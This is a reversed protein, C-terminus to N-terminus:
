NKVFSAMPSIFLKIKKKLVVFMAQMAIARM